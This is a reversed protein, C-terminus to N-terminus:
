KTKVNAAPFTDAKPGTVLLPKGDRLLLVDGGVALVGQLRESSLKDLLKWYTASGFPITGESKRSKKTKGARKVLLRGDIWLNGRRFLALRGIQQVTRVDVCNMRADWFRNRGNLRVQATQLGSNTEQSVSGIGSRSRVARNDFNQLLKSYAHFYGYVDTSTAKGRQSLFATYETMVGYRATLELVEKSLKAVRPDTKQNRVEYTAPAKAGHQRIAEVLQGIRRSAWLRPLFTHVRSASKPEFPFRFSKKAGLYNGTVTLTRPQTGRYRGLVVVRDGAFLDPIRSPLVDRFTKCADKGDATRFAVTVDTLVPKQLRDILPAVKKSVDENPLVFMARGGSAAALGGLLPSLLDVGIGVTYIRRGHPNEKVALNRIKVESPSGNTPLGDTFFLVIPLRGNAAPQALSTKLAGYINSGGRPKINKLYTKAATVNATTNMMPSTACTDVKQNFTVINFADGSQLKGLVGNAVQRVERIRKGDMSASRDIVLTIERKVPNAQPATEPAQLLWLFYGDEKDRPPYALVLGTIGGAATTWSLRFPGPEATANGDVKTVLTGNTHRTVVPHSPCYTATVPKKARISATVGWPTAYRLRESRPLLYGATEGHGRASERYRVQVVPKAGGPFRLSRVVVLSSGYFELVATDNLNVALQRLTNKAESVSQREFAAQEKASGDGSPRVSLLEAKPPLPVLVDCGVPSKGKIALQVDLQTTVTGGRVEVNASVRELSILPKANRQLVGVQPVVVPRAVDLADDGRVPAACCLLIVAILYRGRSM